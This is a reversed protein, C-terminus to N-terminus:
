LHHLELSPTIVVFQQVVLNLRLLHDTIQTHISGGTFVCSMFGASGALSWTLRLPSGDMDDETTSKVQGTSGIEGEVVFITDVMLLTEM